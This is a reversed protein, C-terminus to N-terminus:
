PQLARYCTPEQPKSIFSPEPTDLLNSASHIMFLGGLVLDGAKYFRNFNFQAQSDCSMRSSSSPSVTSSLTLLLCSLLHIYSSARM